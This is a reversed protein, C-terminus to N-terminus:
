AGRPQEQHEKARTSVESADHQGNAAAQAHQAIRFEGALHPVDEIRRWRSRDLRRALRYPQEGEQLALSAEQVEQEFVNLGQGVILDAGADAVDVALALVGQFLM